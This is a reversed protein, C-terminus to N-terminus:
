EKRSSITHPHRLRSVEREGGMGVRREPSAMNSGSLHSGSRAVVKEPGVRSCSPSM